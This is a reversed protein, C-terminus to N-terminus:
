SAQTLAACKYAIVTMLEIWSKVRLDAEQNQLQIALAGVDVGAQKFRALVCDCNGGDAPMAEEPGEQLAVAKLTSEPLAIVTLPAALANIFSVDSIGPNQNKTGAWLLRQPRAGANSARQWRPSSLFERYARYTRRAIAIGLQGNLKDPVKAKVAADWHDVNLSAVSGVQPNLGNAIRRETGLLFAESAAQYHECSFLLTVNVPMGAFIAEEIVSLNEKTGPISILINPRRIRAHLDRVAALTGTADHVFLPSVEISVWGDVGGTQDYLPRFLDAAHYLDELALEFFLEEKFIDQKLKTRIADDYASSNKIAHTFVNTNFTLGTLSWEDIARWLLGSILLDRSVHDLWLSQGLERLTQTAKV